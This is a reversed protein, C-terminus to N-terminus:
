LTLFRQICAQYTYPVATTFETTIVETTTVCPHGFTGSGNAVQANMENPIEDFPQAHSPGAIAM